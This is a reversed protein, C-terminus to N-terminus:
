ALYESLGAGSYCQVVFASKRILVYQRMGDGTTAHMYM